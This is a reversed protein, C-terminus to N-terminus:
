ALNQLERQRHVLQGFPPAEEELAEGTHIIVYIKNTAKWLGFHFDPLAFVRVSFTVWPSMREASITIQEIEESGIYAYIFPFHNELDSWTLPIEGEGEGM